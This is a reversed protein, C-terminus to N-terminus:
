PKQLRKVEDVVNYTARLGVSMDHLGVAIMRLAEVIDAIIPDKSQGKRLALKFAADMLIEQAAVTPKVTMNQRTNPHSTRSPAVANAASPTPPHAGSRTRRLTGPADRRRLERPFLLNLWRLM